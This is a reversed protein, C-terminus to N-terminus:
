LLVSPRVKNAYDDSHALSCVEGFYSLALCFSKKKQFKTRKELRDSVIIKYNSKLRKPHSFYIKM